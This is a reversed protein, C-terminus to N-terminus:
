PRAPAAARGHDRGAHCTGRGRLDLRHRCVGPQWVSSEADYLCDPAVVWHDARDRRWVRIHGRIGGLSILWARQFMGRRVRVGNDDTSSPAVGIASRGQEPRGFDRGTTLVLDPQEGPPHERRERWAVGLIAGLVLVVGIAILLPMIALVVGTPGYKQYDSAISSSLTLRFVIVMGLWCIGTALASPFLERWSLKGALLLWMSAWWFATAAPLSAIAVLGAGGVDNLWPQTWAGVFSVGVAAALWLVRRPADRFGGGQVGFVNQYLDQIAGATAIGFLIFFVWSLGTFAISPTTPSTLAQRVAHAAEGTLGFRRIFGSADDRGYASELVLVLPIFCLLLVAGL